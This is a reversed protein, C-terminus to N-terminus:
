DWSELGHHALDVVVLLCLHLHVTQLRLPLYM